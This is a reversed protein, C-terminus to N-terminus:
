DMNGYDVICSKIGTITQVSNGKWPEETNRIIQFDKLEPSIDRLSLLATNYSYNYSQWQWDKLKDELTAQWCTLSVGLMEKVDVNKVTRFQNLTEPIADTSLQQFYPYDLKDSTVAREVNARVIFSDVNLVNLTLGFGVLVLFAAMVFGRRYNIIELVLVAALLIGLWVMFVHSYTRLRSFGYASELLSLRMFSSVLIVGVLGVLALSLGSFWHQKRASDRHTVASLGLFLMLSLVAVWVLEGFGKRAYEAYTYGNVMINSQGGFFYKFQVAVFFAFLINVAGLIIASETFGLFVPFWPKELGILDTRESKEIVFLYIGSLLYAVICIMALRVAYEMFLEIDLIKKLEESFVPDASVLLLALFFVVPFALLLGRVIAWVSVTKKKPLIQDTDETMETKRSDALLTSGGALTAGVLRAFGTVADALSYRLWIGSSYTLALLALCCLTLLVNIFTTFPEQRIFTLASFLLTMGALVWTLPAPKRGNWFGLAFGAATLLAAFIFFSIGPAKKWFLIDFCIGLLLACWLIRSSTKTLMRIEKEIM